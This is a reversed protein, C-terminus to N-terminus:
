SNYGIKAGSDAIGPLNPILYFIITTQSSEFYSCIFPSSHLIVL